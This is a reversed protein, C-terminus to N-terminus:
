QKQYYLSKGKDTLGYRQNPAKPSEPKELRILDLAIAPKLYNKVFMSRSTFGMDEMLIYLPYWNEGIVSVLKLIKNDITNRNIKKSTSLSVGVPNNKTTVIDKETKATDKIFGDPTWKSMDPRKFVIRVFHGENLYLPREVGVRDCEDYMLALGRGWHETTGTLYLVNAIIENQPQSTNKENNEESRVLENPNIDAPFRGPNEIVVRDDYIAINVQLNDYQWARHTFANLCAERLANSPVELEEKRRIRHHTTGTLSLHKFLFSMAADMLEFINGEVWQNDLFDVKKTGKFRAMRLSCQPYEVRIDKGFLIAAANRLGDTTMLNLRRLATKTDDRLALGTLRNENVAASIMKLLLGEDIMSLTLNPNVEKEWFYKLGRHKEHLRILKELPMVSTVSDFRQYPRGDYAFPASPNNGISEFVILYKDTDPLKIYRPQIEVSPEFRRLAEGIMRTTKDGIEQGVIKGSNKIGFIVIGGNGNLMGCLTEMGRDLQGTSEKFEVDVGEHNEALHQIYDLDVEM